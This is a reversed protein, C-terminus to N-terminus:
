SLLKHKSILKNIASWSQLGEQAGIKQIVYNSNVIAAALSHQIDFDTKILGAVFTSGFADGAGTTNIGKVDLAKSFYQKNGDYVYAGKPGDTIVVFRPGWSHITTLLTKVSTTKIGATMVLEIAEDKNVNFVTTAAIYKKLAKYGLALQENGPNWAISFSQKDCQEFIAAFNQKAHPGNLATLYVWDPNAQLLHRKTVKFVHNAGRHMFIVHENKSGVNVIVSFGTHGNNQFLVFDTTIKKKQLFSEVDYAITDTGLQCHIGTALGLQAINVAANAAGGGYTLHVADSTIKAGYEFAILKQRTVDKKNPNKIIVCDDTYMMLDLTVGGITLIDIKSM